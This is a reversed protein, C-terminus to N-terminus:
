SFSDLIGSGEHEKTIKWVHNSKVTGNRLDIDAKGDKIDLWQSWILRYAPNDASQIMWLGSFEGEAKKLTWLSDNGSHKELKIELDNDSFLFYSFVM